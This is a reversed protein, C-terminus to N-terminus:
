PKIVALKYDCWSYFKAYGFHWFRKLFTLFFFSLRLVFFCCCVILSLRPSFLLYLDKIRHFLKTVQCITMKLMFILGTLM